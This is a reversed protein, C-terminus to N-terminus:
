YIWQGHMVELLRVILQGAWSMAPLGEGSLAYIETQLCVLKKLIMGEM